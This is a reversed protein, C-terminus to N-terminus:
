KKIIEWYGGKDGGKRMLLGLDKLQGTARHITRVAVKYKSALEAASISPNGVIATLVAKQIKTLKTTGKERVNERVNKPRFITLKFFNGVDEFLPQPLGAQLIAERIRSIGTGAKEIIDLRSFMDAIV